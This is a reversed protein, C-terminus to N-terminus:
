EAQQKNQKLSNALEDLMERMVKEFRKGLAQWQQKYQDSVDSDIGGLRQQAMGMHYNCQTVNGTTPDALTQSSDGLNAAVETMVQKDHDNLHNDDDRLARNISDQLQRMIDQLERAHKDIIPGAQQSFSDAMDQLKHGLREMDANLQKATADLSKSLENGMQQLHGFLAGLAGGRLDNGTMKYDVKWTGNQRVLYTECHRNGAASGALGNFRTEIRAEDGDIVVKGLAPKYGKWDLGFGDFAQANSLTSYKVVGNADHEIVAQWFAQSVEQPTKPGFCGSLFLGPFLIFLCLYISKRLM